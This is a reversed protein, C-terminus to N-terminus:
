AVAGWIPWRCTGLRVGIDVATGLNRDLCNTLLLYNGEVIVVGQFTRGGVVLQARGGVPERTGNSPRCFSRAAAACGGSRRSRFGRFRLNRPGVNAASLLGRASWCRMTLHFDDWRFWRPCSRQASTLGGPLGSALTSKGSPAAPRHRGDSPAAAQRRGHVAEALINVQRTIDIMPRGEQRWSSIKRPQAARERLPFRAVLLTLRRCNGAPSRRRAFSNM